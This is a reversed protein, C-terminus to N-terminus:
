VKMGQCGWVNQYGIFDAARSPFSLAHSRTLASLIGPQSGFRISRAANKRASNWLIKGDVGVIESHIEVEMAEAEEERELAM